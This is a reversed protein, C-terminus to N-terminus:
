NVLRLRLVRAPIGMRALHKFWVRQGPQLQDGPGKVEILEYHKPGHVVLLDPLGAGRSHLNRILFQTLRRIDDIPMADLVDRLSFETFMQWDVLSNAIGRKSKYVTLLHLELDEDAQLDAELIQLQKLRPQLFEERYLDHPGSQFPNTFAGAVDAFIVQWYVLGTMTRLLANEVHAGWEGPQLVLDLAQQEIDSTAETIDIQTVPPQYGAQRKGFREAFQAEEESLPEDRIRQLWQDAAQEDGCRHLVRVIRERAPHRSVRGYVAVAAQPQDAREHWRGIRLLTRERRAQIFRDNSVEIQLCASLEDALNPHEELRRSLHSLRRFYLDAQLAQPSEYRKTRMNWPEYRVMGLDRIVFASWDQQNDGFYLLRVLQWIRPQRIILWNFQALMRQCVQRDTYRSLVHVVWEDKRAAKTLRRPSLAAVEAKRAVALIQDGSAPANLCIFQTAVLQELAANLDQIEAYNLSDLRILPGKRTLLRAFLRQADDTLSLYRRLQAIDPASLLDAYHELVFSFLTRCNNQYYDEPPPRDPTLM